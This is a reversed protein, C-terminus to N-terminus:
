PLIFGGFVFALLGALMWILSLKKVRKANEKIPRRAISVASYLFGFDAFMIFPLYLISVMGSLWPYISIIVASAYFPGSAYATKRLGYRIALTKIGRIKDGTVDSMGKIIERGTNALFALLAFVMLPGGPTLDVIFAGYLFPIAVCGSVMLNGWFGAKKGARNYFTSLIFILTAVLLSYLNTFLAVALGVTALLIAYNVTESPKILGSPIPRNPENVKDIMRDYYDNIVMSSACLTFATVFGFISPSVLLTGKLAIIEGVIVAFGMM